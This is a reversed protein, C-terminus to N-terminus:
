TIINRSPTIVKKRNQQTRVFFHWVDNKEDYQAEFKQDVPVNEFFDGQVTVGGSDKLMRWFISHIMQPTVKGPEQEPLVFDKDHKTHQIVLVGTMGCQPCDFVAEREKVPVLYIPAKSFSCEPCTLGKFQKGIERAASDRYSKVDVEQKPEESM